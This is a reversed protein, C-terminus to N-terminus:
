AHNQNIHILLLLLISVVPLLCVCGHQLWAQNYKVVNYMCRKMVVSMLLLLPHTTWAFLLTRKQIRAHAKYKHSLSQDKFFINITSSITHPYLRLMIWVLNSWELYLDMSHKIIKNLQQYWKFTDKRTFGHQKLPKFSKSFSDVLFYIFRYFCSFLEANPLNGKRDVM